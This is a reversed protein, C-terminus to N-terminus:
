LFTEYLRKLIYEGASINNSCDIKVLSVENIITYFDLGHFSAISIRDQNHRNIVRHKTSRFSGSSILEFLDGINIIFKNKIPEISIWSGDDQQAELGPNSDQYLITFCEYDTHEAIGLCQDVYLHRNPYYNVRMTTMPNKLYKNFYDEKLGLALAFLTFLKKELNKIEFYYYQFSNRFLLEHPWLIEDYTIITSDRNNIHGVSIDYSEHCDAMKYASVKETFLPVYGSHWDSNSLLDAEKYKDDKKFYNRGSNILNEMITTSIGHGSLYFFGFKNISKKIEIALNIRCDLGCDFDSIDIEPIMLNM